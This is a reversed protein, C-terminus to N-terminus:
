LTIRLFKPTMELLISWFLIILINKLSDVYLLLISTGMSEIDEYSPYPLVPHSRIVFLKNKIDELIEVSYGDFLSLRQKPMLLVLKKDKSDFSVYLVIEKEKVYKLSELLIETLSGRMLYAFLLIYFVFYLAKHDLSKGVM